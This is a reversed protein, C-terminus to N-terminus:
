PTAGFWVKVQEMTGGTTKGPDAVVGARLLVDSGVAVAQATVIGDGEAYGLVAGSPTQITAYRKGFAGTFRAQLYVPLGKRVPIERQIWWGDGSEVNYDFGDLRGCEGFAQAKTGPKAVQKVERWNALDETFAQATCPKAISETSGGCGLLGALLIVRLMM